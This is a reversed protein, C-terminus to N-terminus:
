NIGLMVELISASSTVTGVGIVGVRVYRDQIPVAIRFNGTATTKHEGTTDTAVGASIAEFTEDYWNTGDASFQIKVSASTLSGITFGHYIILQDWKFAEITAGYVYSTTLIASARYQTQAGQDAGYPLGNSNIRAYDVFHGIGM